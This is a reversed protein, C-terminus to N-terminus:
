WVIPNAMLGMPRVYIGLYKERQLKVYSAGRDGMADRPVDSSTGGFIGGSAIFCTKQIRHYVVCSRRRSRKCIIVYSGHLKHSVIHLEYLIM